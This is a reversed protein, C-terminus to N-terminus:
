KDQVEELEEEYVRHIFVTFNANFSSIQCKPNECNAYFYWYELNEPDLSDGYDGFEIDTIKGPKKCMPCYVKLKWDKALDQVKAAQKRRAPELIANTYFSISKLYDVVEVPLERKHQVLLFLDKEYKTFIRAIEAFDKIMKPKTNEAADVRDQAFKNLKRYRPM